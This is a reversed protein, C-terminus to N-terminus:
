KEGVDVLLGGSLLGEHVELFRVGGQPVDRWVIEKKQPNEGVEESPVVETAKVVVDDLHLYQLEALLKAEDSTTRQVRLTATCTETVGRAVCDFRQFDVKISADQGTGGLQAPTREKLVIGRAWEWKTADHLGGEALAYGVVAILAVVGLFVFVGLIKFVKM